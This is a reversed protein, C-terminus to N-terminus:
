LQRQFWVRKWLLNLSCSSDYSLLNILWFVSNKSNYPTNVSNSVRESGLPLIFPGFIYIILHHMLKLNCHMKLCCLTDWHGLPCMLSHFPRTLPSVKGKTMLPVLDRFFLSAIKEALLCLAPGWHYISGSFVSNKHEQYLWLLVLCCLPQSTLLYTIWSTVVM